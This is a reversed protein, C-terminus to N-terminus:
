PMLQPKDIATEVADRIEDVTLDETGIDFYAALEDLRGTTTKNSAIGTKGTLGTTNTVTTACYQKRCRCRKRKTRKVAAYDASAGLPNAAVAYRSPRRQGSKL